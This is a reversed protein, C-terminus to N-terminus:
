GIKSDEYGSLALLTRGMSFLTLCNFRPSRMHCYEATFLKMCSIDVCQLIVHVVPKMRKLFHHSQAHSGNALRPGTRIAM